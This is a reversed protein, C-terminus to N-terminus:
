RSFIVRKLGIKKEESHAKWGDGKLYDAKIGQRNRELHTKLGESRVSKFLNIMEQDLLNVVKRKKKKVLKRDLTSTITLITFLSAVTM